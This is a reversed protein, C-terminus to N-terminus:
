ILNSESIKRVDHWIDVILLFDLDFVGSFKLVGKLHNNTSMMVAM